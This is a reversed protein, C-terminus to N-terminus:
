PKRSDGVWKKMRLLWKDLDGQFKLAEKKTHQQACARGCEEILRIKTEEDLYSDMNKLLTSVWDHVFKEKQKM